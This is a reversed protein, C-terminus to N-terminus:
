DSRAARSGPRDRPAASGPPAAGGPGRLTSKRLKATPPAPRASACRWARRTSSRCSAPV